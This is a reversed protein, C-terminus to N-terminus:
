GGCVKKINSKAAMEMIRRGTATSGTFAVKEIEQHSAIAAGVDAGYGNLVALVGPPFGAEVVLEAIRLATLPTQEAPKLIVCNGAALAPALKWSLMMLPYNWPIIAGCIGIPELRTMAMKTREDLEITKGELKDALGAYYRFCAATDPVDMTAAIWHPKGNDLSELEGLEDAHKDILDALKSLCAVRQVPTAMRGWSTALTHQAAKVAVDVDAATGCEVECLPTGLAPNVTELKKGEQAKIFANNIFIGTPCPISRGSPSKIAISPATASMEALLTPHRTFFTAFTRERAPEVGGLLGPAASMYVCVM